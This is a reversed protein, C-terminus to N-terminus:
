IVLRLQAAQKSSEHSWTPDIRSFVREAWANEDVDGYSGVLDLMEDLSVHVERLPGRPSFGFKSALLRHLRLKVVGSWREQDYSIYSPELVRIAGADQGKNIARVLDIHRGQEEDFLSKEGVDFCIIGRENSRLANEGKTQLLFILRGLAKVIRSAHFGGRQNVDLRGMFYDESAQRIADAQHKAPVTRPNYLNFSRVRKSKETTRFIHHQILLFDRICGDSVTGISVEGLMPVDKRTEACYHTLAAAAKQRFYNDIQDFEQGKFARDARAADSKFLQNFIYAQYYPPVRREPQREELEECLSSFWSEYSEVFEHMRKRRRMTTSKILYDFVSNYDSPGFLMEMIQNYSRLTNRRGKMAPNDITVQSLRAILVEKCITRFIKRDRSYDLSITKRDHTTLALSPDVTDSDNFLGKVFSIKYCIPSRSSQVVTNLFKQHDKSLFHANDVCIALFYQKEDSVALIGKAVIKKCFVEYLIPPSIEGTLDIIPDINTRGVDIRLKMCIKRFASSLELFTIENGKKYSELSPFEEFIESVMERESNIPYRLIGESRAFVITDLIESLSILHFYLTFVDEHVESSISSLVKFRKTFQHLLSICSGILENPMNEKNKILVEKSNRVRLDLANLITTKGSGRIGPLYVNKSDAIEEMSAPVCIIHLADHEWRQTAFPNGTVKTM